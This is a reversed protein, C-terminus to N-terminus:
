RAKLGRGPAEIRHRCPRSWVKGLWVKGLFGTGGVVLVRAGEFVRSLDL